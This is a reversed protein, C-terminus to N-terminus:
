RAQHMGIKEGQKVAWESYGRSAAALREADYIGMESQYEQEELVALKTKERCRLMKSLANRDIFHEIGISFIAIAQLLTAKESDSFQTYGTLRKRTNNVSRKRAEKMSSKEEESYWLQNIDLDDPLEYTHTDTDTAFRVRRRKAAILQRRQVMDVLITQGAQCIAHMFPNLNRRNNNVRVKVQFDVILDSTCM